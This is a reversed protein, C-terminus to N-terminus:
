CAHRGAEEMESSSWNGTSIRNGVLLNRLLNLTTTTRVVLLPRQVALLLLQPGATTTSCFSRFLATLEFSSPPYLSPPPRVSMPLLSPAFSPRPSLSPFTSHHRNLPLSLPPSCCSAAEKKENKYNEPGSMASTSYLLLPPFSSFSVFCACCLSQLVLFPAPRRTRDDARRQTSKMERPSGKGRSFFAPDFRSLSSTSSEGRLLGTRLFCCCLGRVRCRRARRDKKM